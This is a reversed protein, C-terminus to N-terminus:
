GRTATSMSVLTSLSEGPALGTERTKRAHEYVGLRECERRAKELLARGEASQKWEKTARELMACDREAIRQERTHAHNWCSPYGLEDIEYGDGWWQTERCNACQGVGDALHFWIYPEQTLPEECVECPKALVKKLADQWHPSPEEPYLRVWEPCDFPYMMKGAKFEAECADCLHWKGNTCTLCNHQPKPETVPEGDGDCPLSNYSNDGGCSPPPEPSVEYLENFEYPRAGVAFWRETPKTATAEKRYYALGSRRLSELLETLTGSSLNRQCVNELIETRTIGKEGAARLAVLIRDARGDGTASAFIWGASRECYSWVALAARLHEVNVTTSSDLLAFICSLRLVQAEGRATIAGLMGPKGESLEPYLMRWLERAQDHRTIEGADYRAFDIANHLRMVLDNLNEGDLNGGEPLCKSRRVALWLFRNAFGNGSENETLLRRLEDRTIHGIISVHAGTARAECNKTMSRLNGNDWASRIVPSLTNGERAMVKLVQAFEGESVCLRKDDVGPDDTFTEYSGTFKGKERIPRTKEIADRVAWIVGEGSALGNAICNIKWDEDAREFLRLVHNWSTGKRAKSSEGVLVAFLNMGHRSGDAIAHPNRGTASGFALLVQILIAVSSAETHPEIRKVIDGALGHFAAENPPEPFYGVSPAFSNLSTEEPRVHAPHDLKRKADPFLDSAKM